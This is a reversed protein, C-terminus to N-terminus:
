NQNFGNQNLDEKRLNKLSSRYEYADAPVDEAPSASARSHSGSANSQASGSKRRRLQKTNGHCKFVFKIERM